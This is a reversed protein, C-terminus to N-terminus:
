CRGVVLTGALQQHPVRIGLSIPPVGLHVPLVHPSQPPLLLPPWVPNAGRLGPLDSSAPPLSERPLAPSSCHAIAQGVWAPSGASCGLQYGGELAGELGCPDMPAYSPPQPSWYCFTPPAMWSPHSLLPPHNGRGSLGLSGASIEPWDGASWLGRWTTHTRPAMPLLGLPSCSLCAPPARRSSQFLSPPCNGWGSPGPLRSLEWATGRGEVAMGVGGVGGAVNTRPAYSPPRPSWSLCAPPARRSQLLLLSFSPM